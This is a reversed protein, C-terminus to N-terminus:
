GQAQEQGDVPPSPRLAHPGSVGGSKGGVAFFVVAFTFFMLAVALFVNNLPEGKIVPKLVAPVLFMVGGFAFLIPVLNNKWAKM